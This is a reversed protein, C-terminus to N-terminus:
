QPFIINASHKPRRDCAMNRKTLTSLATDKTSLLIVKPCPLACLKDHSSSCGIMAQEGTKLLCRDETHSAYQIVTPDVIAM